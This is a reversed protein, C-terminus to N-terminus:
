LLKIKDVNHILTLTRMTPFHFQIELFPLAPFLGTANPNSNSNDTLVGLKKYLFLYVHIELM